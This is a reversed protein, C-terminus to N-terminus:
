GDATAVGERHLIGLGRPDEVSRVIVIEEELLGKRGGRRRRRGWRWGRGRGRGEATVVM